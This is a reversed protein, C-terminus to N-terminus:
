RRVRDIQSPASAVTRIYPPIVLVGRRPLNITALLDPMRDRPMGCHSLVCPRFGQVAVNRLGVRAAEDRICEAVAATDSDRRYFIRLNVRSKAKAWERWINCYKWKNKKGYTTDLLWIDGLTALAGQSWQADRVRAALNNFVAYAHSHGALILGGVAPAASWGAGTLGTRVEELFANMQTPEGLTHMPQSPKWHMTPVVLVFPQNSDALQKALPFAESKVYSVADKGEDCCPIIDGHIWVLLSVPNTALAANPVYVATTSGGNKSTFQYLKGNV